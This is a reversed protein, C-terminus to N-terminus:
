PLSNPHPNFNFDGKGDDTDDPHPNMAEHIAAAQERRQQVVAPTHYSPRPYTVEETPQQADPIGLAKRLLHTQENLQDNLRGKTQFCHMNQNHVYAQQLATKLRDNELEVEASEFPNHNKVWHRYDEAQIHCVNLRWQEKEAALAQIRESPMMPKAHPAATKPHYTPANAADLASTVAARYSQTVNEQARLDSRLQAIELQQQGIIKQSGTTRDILRQNFSSILYEVCSHSGDRGTQWEYGCTACTSTPVSAPGALAPVVNGPAPVAACPGTHGATRTCKWGPPPLTCEAQAQEKALDSEHDNYDTPPNM